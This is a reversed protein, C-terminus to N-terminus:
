RAHWRLCGAPSPVVEMGESSVVSTFPQRVAGVYKKLMSQKCLDHTPLNNKLELFKEQYDVPVIRVDASFSDRIFSSNNKNM